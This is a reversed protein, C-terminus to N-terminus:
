SSLAMRPVRRSWRYSPTPEARSTTAIITISGPRLSVEGGGELDAAIVAFGDMAARDTSPVDIPAVVDTGVIRGAAEVLPIRRTELIPVCLRLATDLAVAYATLEGFPRMENRGQLTDQMPEYHLRYSRRLRVAAQRGPRKATADERGRETDRRVGARSSQPPMMSVM